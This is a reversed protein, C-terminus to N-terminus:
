NSRLRRLLDPDVVGDPNIQTESEYRRLEQAFRDARGEAIQIQEKLIRGAEQAAAVKRRLLDNEARAASLEAKSVYGELAADISRRKDYEHVAWALASLVAVVGLVAAYLRWRGPLFPVLWRMLAGYPM